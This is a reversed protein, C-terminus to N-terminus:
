RRKRSTPLYGLRVTVARTAPRGAAPTQSVVRRRRDARDPVSSALILPAHCGSVLLVSRAGALTRGIL